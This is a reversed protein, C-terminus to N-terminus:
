HRLRRRVAAADALSHQPLQLYYQDADNQCKSLDTRTDAVFVPDDQDDTDPTVSAARYPLKRCLDNEDIM